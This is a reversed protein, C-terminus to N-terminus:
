KREGKAKRLRVVRGAVMKPSSISKLRDPAHTLVRSIVGNFKEWQAPEM